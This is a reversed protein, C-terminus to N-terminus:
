PTQFYLKSTVKVKHHTLLSISIYLHMKCLTAKQKSMYMFSIVQYLPKTAPFLSPCTSKDSQNITSMRDVFDVKPM